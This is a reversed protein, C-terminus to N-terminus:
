GSAGPSRESGKGPAKPVEKKKQELEMKKADEMKKEQDERELRDGTSEEQPKANFTPQFYYEDHRQQHLKKRTAELMQQDTSVQQQPNIAGQAGQQATAGYLDNVFDQSSQDQGLVASVDANPPMQSQQPSSTVGFQSKVQSQVSKTLNKGQETLTEFSFPNKM